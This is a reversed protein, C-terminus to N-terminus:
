EEEETACDHHIGNDDACNAFCSEEGCCDCITLDEHDCAAHCTHCIATKEPREYAM